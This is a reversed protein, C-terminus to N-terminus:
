AFQSHTKSYCWSMELCHYLNSYMVCVTKKKKRPKQNQTYKKGRKRDRQITIKLHLFILHFISLFHLMQKITSQFTTHTKNWKEHWFFILKDTYNTNEKTKIEFPWESISEVRGNVVWLFFMYLHFLSSFLHALWIHPMQNKHEWEEFLVCYYLFFAGIRMFESRILLCWCIVSFLVDCIACWVVIRVVFKIQHNMKWSRKCHRQEFGYTKVFSLNCLDYAIVCLYHVFFPFCWIHVYINTWVDSFTSTHIQNNTQQFSIFSQNQLAM